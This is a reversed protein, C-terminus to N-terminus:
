KEVYVMNNREFFINNLYIIDEGNKIKFWEKLIDDIILSTNPNIDDHIEIILSKTRNLWNKNGFKFIENEAGEIDMKFIDIIENECIDNPTICKTKNIFKDSNEEIRYSWHGDKQCVVDINDSQIYWIAMNRVEINDINFTNKVLLNYNSIEPEFAIIKADRYLSHLKVSSYGVYAGADIILKVNKFKIFDVEYSNEIFIKNIVAADTTKKRVFIKNGLFTFYVYVFSDVPSHYYIYNSFDYYYEYINGTYKVMSKFDKDDIFETIDEM